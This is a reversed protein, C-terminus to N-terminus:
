SFKDVDLKQNQIIRLHRDKAVVLIALVAFSCAVRAVYVTAFWWARSCSPGAYSVAFPSPYLEGRGKRTIGRDIGYKVQRPLREASAFSEGMLLLWILRITAELACVELPLRRRLRSYPLGGAHLGLLYRFDAPDERPVAAGPEPQGRGRGFRRLLEGRLARGTAPEREADPKAAGGSGPAGLRVLSSCIINM